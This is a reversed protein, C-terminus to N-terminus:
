PSGDPASESRRRSRSCAPSARPPGGGGAPRPPDRPARPRRVRDGARQQRRHAARDGDHRRDRRAASPPGTRDRARAPRVHAATDPDTTVLAKAADLLTAIAVEDGPEASAALQVAVEVPLAGAELLVGAAQRDLARRATVPVSARVAERTIDHWFALKEDREVLLNAELLEGVPALLDSAPRGLTRALEDFTFTRGLSAAVTVADSAEDSLRGLRERMKQTCAGRAAPRRDARRPRRRPPDPGRGATRAADRRRPVPKRRSGGTAGPDVSRAACRAHGRGAARGRRRRTPRPRDPAGRGAEATRARPRAADVRAAPSPRDGLRDAIGILRMPLTRIAAVTGGDAWHADDISILLPSELAARELLQQLDRLLWFRQEPQAHLTSLGGPDLLPEAGDFLAASCRRSSSSRRARIPQAAASESASAALSRRRGRRAPPEQGHRRRGRRRDGSRRRRLPPELEARILALEADRGHFERAPSTSM